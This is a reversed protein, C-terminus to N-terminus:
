SKPIFLVTHLSLSFVIFHINIQQTIHLIRIFPTRLTALLDYRDKVLRVLCITTPELITKVKQKDKRTQTVLLVTKETKKKYGAPDTKHDERYSIYFHSFPMELTCSQDICSVITLTRVYCCKGIPHRVNLVAIHGLKADVEHGSKM